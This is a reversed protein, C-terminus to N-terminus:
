SGQGRRKWYHLFPSVLEKYSASQQPPCYMVAKIFEEPPQYNHMEIYHLIMAPSIYLIAAETSPILLNLGSSFRNEVCFECVHEGFLGVPQWPSILHLRLAETFTSPVRGKRYDYSISLWGVAKIGPGHALQCRNGLDTYYM